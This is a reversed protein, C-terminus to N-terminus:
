DEDPDPFAVVFRLRRLFASDLNPRRAVSLVTLGPYSEMRQLLAGIQLNAYRDHSDRVDARKGFLADAEDFFLIAGSAEAAEFLRRLNRETQGIYRSVVAALDVRYLDAGTERALAEAAASKGQSDRGIFLTAAGGHGSAAPMAPARADPPRLGGAIQRLQRLETEPLALDDWGARPALRQALEDLRPGTWAGQGWGEMRQPNVPGM